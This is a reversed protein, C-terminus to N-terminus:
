RNRGGSVAAAREFIDAFLEDDSLRTPEDLLVIPREVAVPESSPREVTPQGTLTAAWERLEDDTSQPPIDDLSRTLRLKM